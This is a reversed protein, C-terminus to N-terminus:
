KQSFKAYNNDILLGVGQSLPSTSNNHYFFRFNTSRFMHQATKNTLKTEALGMVALKSNIFFQEIQAQKSPLSLGRVNHSLLRFPQSTSENNQKKNKNNKNINQHSMM